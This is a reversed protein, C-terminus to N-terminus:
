ELQGTLDAPFSLPDARLASWFARIMRRDNHLSREIKYAQKFDLDTISISVVYQQGTSEESILTCVSSGQEILGGSSLVSANPAARQIAVM